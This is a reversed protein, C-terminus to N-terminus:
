NRLENLYEIQFKQLIEEVIRCWFEEKFQRKYYNKFVWAYKEELNKIKIITGFYWTKKAIIEATDLARKLPSSIIVDFIFWKSRLETWIEKAQNIWTQNLESDIDWPNIMKNLNRDTEWHRILYIEM